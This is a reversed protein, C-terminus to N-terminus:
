IFMRFREGKNLILIVTDPGIIGISMTNTVSKVATHMLRQKGVRGPFRLLLNNYLMAVMWFMKAICTM